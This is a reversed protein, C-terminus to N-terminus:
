NLLQAYLAIGITATAAIGIGTLGLLLRRLGRQFRQAAEMRAILADQEAESMAQWQEFPPFAPTSARM